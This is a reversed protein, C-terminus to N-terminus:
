IDSIINLNVYYMNDSSKNIFRLFHIANFVKGHIIFLDSFNGSLKICVRSIYKPKM